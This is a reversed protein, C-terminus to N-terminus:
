EPPPHRRRYGRPSLAMAVMAAAPEDIKPSRALWETFSVQPEEDRPPAPPSSAPPPPRPAIRAAREKAAREKKSRRADARQEQRSKRVNLTTGYRSIQGNPLRGGPMVRVRRIAGKAAARRLVRSISREGPRPGKHGLMDRMARESAWAFAYQQSLADVLDLARV